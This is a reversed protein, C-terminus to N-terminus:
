KEYTVDYWPVSLLGNYMDISVSDGINISYYREKGVDIENNETQKGWATLEVYYSTSKGSSIRKSLVKSKYSVHITNDYYCNIFVIASSSYALVFPILVKLTELKAKRSSIFENPKTFVCLALIAAGILANIMLQYYDLIHFDLIGRFFLGAGLFIFSVMFSPFMSKEDDDVTILGRNLKLFALLGIPMVLATLMSYKYPKTYFLLWAAVVGSTTNMYWVYRKIKNFEAARLEDTEGISEYVEEEESLPFESEEEDDETIEEDEALEDDVEIEEEPDTMKEWLWDIIEDKGDFHVSIKIKKKPDDILDIVINSKDVEYGEMGDVTVEKKTFIDKICLVDNDIIVRKSFTNIILCFFGLVFLYLLWFDDISKGEYRIDSYSDYLLYTACILPVIYQSIIYKRNLKYVLM